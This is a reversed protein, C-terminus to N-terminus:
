DNEAELGILREGNAIDLEVIWLDDDQRGRRELYESFDSPNEIDQRRSCYWQRTGDAQPMREYARSNAGRESIVVLITGAQEEGKKLVVAFGGDANTRRVLASVEVHAALRPEM